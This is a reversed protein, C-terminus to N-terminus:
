GAHAEVAKSAFFRAMTATSLSNTCPEAAPIGDRAELWAPERNTLWELDYASLYGYATWVERVHDWIEPPVAALEPSDPTLSSPIPGFGHATFQRYVAPVTPGHIWAELPDDFLPTGHLGLHWGQAYYLLKQLKLNTVLDGHENCFALFCDALTRATIAAM